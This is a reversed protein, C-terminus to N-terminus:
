HSGVSHSSWLVVVCGASKLASEISEPYHVGAPIDVDWWVTFGHHEIARAIAAATQRDESAYSLFVHKTGSAPSM